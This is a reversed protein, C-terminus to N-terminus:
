IESFALIAMIEKHRFRYNEYASKAADSFRESDPSDVPFYVLLKKEEDFCDIAALSVGLEPVNSPMLVQVIEDYLIENIEPASKTWSFLGSKKYSENPDYIIVRKDTAIFFKEKARKSGQKGNVVSYVFENSELKNILEKPIKDLRKRLLHRVRKQETRLIDLERPNKTLVSGCYVCLFTGIGLNEGCTPCKSPKNELHINNVYNLYTGCYPCRSNKDPIPANCVPCKQAVLHM